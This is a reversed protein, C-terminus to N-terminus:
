PFNCGITGSGDLAGCTVGGIVASANVAFSSPVQATPTGSFPSASVLVSNPDAGTLTRWSALSLAQGFTQGFVVGNSNSGYVNNDFTAGAVAINATIWLCNGYGGGHDYTNGLQYVINHQFQLAAGSVAADAQIASFPTTHAPTGFFTNNFCQVLGAMNNGDQAHLNLAGLVINHHFISTTGVGTSLSEVSGQGINGSDNSSGFSGHDLYNYSCDLFNQHTDKPLLASCNYMTNHTITVNTSTFHSIAHLGWPVTSGGGGTITQLDHLKCNTIVPSVCGSLYIAAPNEDPIINGGNYIECNKIVIGPMTGAVVDSFTLGGQTFFRLGIGDVTVWGQNPVSGRFFNQGVAFATVTPAAGGSPNSFDIVAWPGAGSVPAVYAGSSNCSGIYTSASSTGGNVNFICASGDGPQGQYAAFLTTVAGSISTQQIPTQVGAIDGVLGINKGSYTSQKSNLASLSWATAPTLGNNADDGNPSIFFNFTGGPPGGGGGSAPIAFGHRPRAWAPMAAYAALGASSALFERRSVANQRKALRVAKRQASM